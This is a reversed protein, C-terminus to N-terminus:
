IKSVETDSLLHGGSELWKLLNMVKKKGGKIRKPLVMNGFVMERIGLEVLVGCLDKWAVMMKRHSEEIAEQPISVDSSWGGEYWYQKKAEKFSLFVAFLEWVEDSTLQRLPLQYHHKKEGYSVILGNKELIVDQVGSSYNFGWGGGSTSLSYDEEGQFSLICEGTERDYIYFRQTIELEYLGGGSHEEKVLKWRGKIITDKSM